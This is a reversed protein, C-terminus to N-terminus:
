QGQYKQNTQNKTQYLTKALEIHIPISKEDQAHIQNLFKLLTENIAAILMGFMSFYHKCGKIM